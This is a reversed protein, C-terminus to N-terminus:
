QEMAAAVEPDTQAILKLDIMFRDEPFFYFIRYKQKTYEIINPHEM